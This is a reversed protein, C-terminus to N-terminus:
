AGGSSHGAGISGFGGRGMTAGTRGGSFGSMTGRSLSTQGGYTRSNVFSSARTETPVYHNSYSSMPASYVRGGGLRYRDYSSYYYSYPNPYLMPYWAGNYRYGHGQIAVECAPQNFTAQACPDVGVPAPDTCATLAALIASNMVTLSIAKSKKM